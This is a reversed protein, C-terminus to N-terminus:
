RSHDASLNAKGICVAPDLRGTLEWVVVRGSESVARAGASPGIWGLEAPTEDGSSDRDTSPPSTVVYDFDGANVAAVWAPCDAPRSFAGSDTREGIAVVDNSADRGWLGYQFFQALTGSLGIRVDSVNRAWDNAAGIGLALEESPYSDTPYSPAASSYRNELYDDRAIGGLIVAVVAAAVLGTGILRRDLGRRIALIAGVPVGVLLSVLLLGPLLRGYDLVSPYGGCGILMVSFAVAVAIAWAPERDRVLRSPLAFLCLGLALAPASYRVNLTFATPSGEPGAAGLPTLLYALGAIVAVFGLARGLRSRSLLAVFIGVVAFVVMLLWLTGLREELGPVFWNSWVSFDFAYHAISHPDRGLLDGAKPLPGLQFWPLPNGSDALNRGYWLGGTLLAGGLWAGFTRLRRGDEALYLVAIALAAVPGALTLKTGIALGAALGALAAVGVPLAAFSPDREGPMPALGASRWWGNAILAAAALLLVTGMADNNANGPQRSFVAETAMLAAVGITAPAGMGYPRGLCWAAVLGMGLWAYNLLPSLFDDGVALLAVAHLLESNQPYFWNLYLTDTYLLSTVSGTQAIHAAFPMHYWLTDGGYLGRELSTLAPGSWQLAVLAAVAIAAPLQWSGRPAEPLGPDDTGPGRAPLRLAVVATLISVVVLAPADLLGVLGLASALVVLLAFWLVADALLAPAGSWGALMRRRLQVAAVVLPAAIAAMVAVATLWSAAIM